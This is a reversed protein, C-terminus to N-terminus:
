KDKNRETLPPDLLEKPKFLTAVVVTVVVLVLGLLELALINRDVGLMTLGAGVFYMPWVTLCKQRYTWRNM